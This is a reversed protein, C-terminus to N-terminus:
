TIANIIKYAMYKLFRLYWKGNSYFTPYINNLKGELNYDCYAPNNGLRKIIEKNKGGYRLAETCCVDIASCAQEVEEKTQPQKVFFIDCEDKDDNLLTPAEGEPLMCALCGGEITYFDGDVNRKDREPHWACTRKM